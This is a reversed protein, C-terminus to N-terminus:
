WWWWYYYYYYYYYQKWGYQTLLSICFPDFYFKHQCICLLQLVTYGLFMTQKLYIYDYIGQFLLPLMIYYYYYNYYYYYYYAFDRGVDHLRIHLLLTPGSMRLKPELHLHTTMTVGWGSQGRSPVGTCTSLPSPPGKIRDPRNLLISFRKGKGPNTGWVTCNTAYASYSIHQGPEQLLLLLLLAVQFAYLPRQLTAKCV